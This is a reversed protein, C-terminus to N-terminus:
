RYVLVIGLVYFLNYTSHAVVGPLLSRAREFAFAWVFGSWFTMLFGSLAYFHIASFFAASAFASTVAGYRTRLTAYVLGRFFLEEFLPTWVLYDIAAEVVERTSGWVFTEDFGEAWHGAFGLSLSVRALATTGLLDIALASIAVVLLGVSLVRGRAAGFFSFDRGGGATNRPVLHRAVLWLMPLAALLTGWRYFPELGSPDELEMAVAGLLLYYLRGWFDARVLVAFGLAMSWPVDLQPAGKSRKFLAVACIAVGALVLLANAANLGDVRRLWRQGRREIEGAIELRQLSAEGGDLLRLAARELHWDELGARALHELPDVSPEVGHEDDGYIAHFAATLEANGTAVARARAEDLQGLEALVVAVRLESRELQDLSEYGLEHRRRVERAADRQVELAAALAEDRSGYWSRRFEFLPGEGDLAEILELDRTVIRAATNAPDYLWGTPDSGINAGWGQLMVLLWAVAYLATMSPLFPNPLPTRGTTDGRAPGEAERGASDEM